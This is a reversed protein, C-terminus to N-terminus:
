HEIPIHRALATVNLDGNAVADPSWAVVQSIGTGPVGVELFSPRATTAGDLNGWVLLASVGEGPSLRIRRVGPDGSFYTAGNRVSQPTIAHHGADLMRLAPYGRVDCSLMSTNTLAIMIARHSMGGLDTDYVQARTGANTCTAAPAPPEAAAARTGGSAPVATMVLTGAVVGILGIRTRAM